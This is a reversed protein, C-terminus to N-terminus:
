FFFFFTMFVTIHQSLCSTIRPMLLYACLVNHYVQETGGDGHLPIRFESTVRGRCFLTGRGEFSILALRSEASVPNKRLMGYDSQLPGLAQVKQGDSRRQIIETDLATGKGLAWPTGPLVRMGWHPIRPPENPGNRNRGAPRLASYIGPRYGPSENPPVSVSKKEWQCHVRAPEPLPSGLTLLRFVHTCIRTDANCESLAESCAHGANKAHTLGRRELARTKVGDNGISRKRRAAM